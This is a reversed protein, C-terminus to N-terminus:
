NLHAQVHRAPTVAAGVLRALVPHDMMGTSPRLACRNLEGFGDRKLAEDSRNLRVTVRIVM